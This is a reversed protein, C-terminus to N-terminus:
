RRRGESKVEDYVVNQMYNSFMKQNYNKKFEEEIMILKTLLTKYESVKMHEKYKNIIIGKLKNIEDLVMGADDDSTGEDNLIKLMFDIVKDIKKNIRQKIYSERLEPDVIVVKKAKIKLNKVDNKPEVDLGVLKVSYYMLKMKENNKYIVYKM